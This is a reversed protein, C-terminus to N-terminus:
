GGFLYLALWAVIAATIAWSLVRGVQRGWHEAWDLEEAANQPLSGSEQGVRRLVARAERERPSPKPPPFPESMSEGFLGQAEVM